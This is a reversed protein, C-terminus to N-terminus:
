GGGGQGGGRGAALARKLADMERRVTEALAEVSSEVQAVRDPGPVGGGAASAGPQFGVVNGPASDWRNAWPDAGGGASAIEAGSFGGQEEIIDRAVVEVTERDIAHLEELSAHLFLRDCFTNVRRPVGETFRYIAEHAAEDISPDRQWGVLTLRHEIYARTEAAELPQLHYAAIVRQRLQEFSPSRMITRFEKQGLLFSQVLMRGGIQFNSLMRLEEVARPPLNQSEDVVLLVRKREQHCARFFGELNRLLAAKSVGEFPLGFSSAVLRLLDDEQIQTTVIQAAVLHEQQVSRFLAQSLTTKGTGVDGTIVVFGEGQRVGYLLYALARKHSQSKFFFRPDPSLQFPRARLKYFTDYM